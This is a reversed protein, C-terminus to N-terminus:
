RIGSTTNNNNTTTADDGSTVDDGSVSVHKVYDVTRDLRRRRRQIASLPHRIGNQRRRRATPCVAAANRGNREAGSGPEDAAVPERDAFILYPTASFLRGTSTSPPPSRDSDAPLGVHHSLPPLPPSANDDDDLPPSGARVQWHPHDSASGRSRKRSPGGDDVSRTCKGAAGRICEESKAATRDAVRLEQVEAAAGSGCPRRRKTENVVCTASSSDGVDVTYCGSFADYGYSCKDARLRDATEVTEPLLGPYHPEVAPDDESTAGSTSDRAVVRSNWDCCNRRYASVDATTTVDGSTVDGGATVAGCGYRLDPPPLSLDYSTVDPRSPAVDPSRRDPVAHISATHVLYTTSTSALSGSLADVSVYPLTQAACHAMSSIPALLPFPLQSPTVARRQHGGGAAVPVTLSDPTASHWLPEAGICFM